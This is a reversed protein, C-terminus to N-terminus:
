MSYEKQHGYIIITKSEDKKEVIRKGRNSAM